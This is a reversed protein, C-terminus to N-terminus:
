GHAAVVPLTFFFKTGRGKESELWIRGGYREVIRKCLALGVGSGSHRSGHLRRFLGFVKTGYEPDIGIGNDRVCFLWYDTQPSVSVHVEPKGDGHYKIANGLLNQFLQLVHVDVAQVEPLQDHSIVAGSQQIAI